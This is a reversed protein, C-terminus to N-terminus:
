DPIVLDPVLRNEAQLRRLFDRALPWMKINEPGRRDELAQRLKNVVRQPDNWSAIGGAGTPLYEQLIGSIGGNDKGRNLLSRHKEPNMDENFYNLDDFKNPIAVGPGSEHLKVVPFSYSM